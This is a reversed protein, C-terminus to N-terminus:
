QGAGEIVVVSPHELDSRPKVFDFLDPYVIARDPEQPFRVPLWQEM